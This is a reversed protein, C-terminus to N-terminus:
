ALARGGGRLGPRRRRQALRRAHSVHRRGRRERRQTVRAEADRPERKQGRLDHDPRLGHARDVDDRALGADAASTASIWVAILTGPTTRESNAPATASTISRRRRSTAAVGPSPRTSSRARRTSPRRRPSAPPRARRERRREAGPQRHEQGREGRRDRVEHRARRSADATAIVFTETFTARATPGASAPTTIACRRRRRATRPARRGHKTTTTTCGRRARAARCRARARGSRM